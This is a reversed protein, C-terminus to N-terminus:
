KASTISDNVHLECKCASRTKENTNPIIPNNM